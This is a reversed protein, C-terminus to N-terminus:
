FLGLQEGNNGSANDEGPTEEDPKTENNMKIEIPKISQVDFQSLRNGQAKWGKVEIFEALNILDSHREKQRGKEYDLVIHPASHVSVFTLESAKHDGIFPFKKGPKSNDLMFRKVFHRKLKGDFYIATIVMEPSFKGIHLITGSQYRNTLEFSTLECLGSDYIVIICNGTDFSGLFLGRRELNLRCTAEDYWIKRGGLTAAGASKQNIRGVPYKTVVNGQSGRGKIALQEFDFDFVRKRARARQSLYVTVIESESNENATFYLVRSGKAGRTLDTEKDRTIATVAFRKAFSKGTDPDFYIMNYVMRQDGKKWVAVHIIDKGVFTKSAIKTVILKGDKRFVIIDDIDSCESILEDKRLGFGVFGEARNVYLKQNAVAVRTAQITDFTRIETKRQWDKGFKEKLGNFYAIAYDVLHALNYKVDKLEAELAKIAEDAKFSNYKSIRKIKIETLRVIDDETIERRFLNKFPDLGKDITTIVAEWTECEEIDRYIRNEIFVKELSSFHWKEELNGKKIELEQRLLEVTSDTSRKLIEDVSLFYPKENNIICSNPSISVECDTFAYLADISVDPSVGAPLEVLIEVNKATNDVVKKIKIKNNESAKVISDMVSTTTTGYPIDRIIIRKKDLIELTARVRIKGGKLGGNYNSFDATGGAPFDPVLIFSENRLHHISADILENLNHPMLKTALGVAIGEVGQSLLLPFKVPLHVPEKKRGDYSIQWETTAPNFIVELAFKSLRAEIYRPAAARDGTRVDGWNGQTEILLEKQGLNVIADGIAADGHPHYQMTSGIINAVKNFRGDDMEKMAHLIRRQVPKLGDSLAPVARELIVYSAYELFWNEYMGDVHTRKQIEIDSNGATAMPTNGNESDPM